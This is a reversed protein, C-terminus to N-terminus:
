TVLAEASTSDSAGRLRQFDLNLRSISGQQKGTRVMGIKECFEVNIITETGLFERLLTLVKDFEDTTFRLGKVIKLNIEGQAVQEVLYQRILYDYDKFLHAFFTGPLYRGSSGVILAQVRGEIQGIMPLGRGCACTKSSDMAVALDGLRYRIMPMCYNNLDTIVVEGMEGPKAPHGDKLIEVIYSEAVVHHGQHAECEYAIGSFERSGYKDFVKCGFSEEIVRRSQEPLIQASSMIARPRLGALESTKLYTALFNFSEAYGDIFTPQYKALREIFSKISSESMEFAPIFLRRCLFADIKERMVQLKSMGITQHWLRAQKDGFQYGTWEASRLTSAWRIELQHQDAFCTFPEGTSGSTSVRIIRKKDHNDSLLDFYLNQRVDQKSLLPLKQLDELTQVDEPKLGLARMRDHYYPVHRYAHQILARLKLQQLQKVDAPSLWQSKKLEHYYLKARRTIMWKHLPTLLFYVEFLVKRWLAPSRDATVPKHTKLFDALIHDRKTSLRFEYFGKFVDSFTKLIMRVALGKIFSKGALRSEFLTEVERISYGKSVASVALLSQFYNYKLRHRLIDQLVEKHAIVFGSKNDRLRMGFASNLLVNLARSMLYRSDRLRGISSRYGQAVDARSFMIEQYLRWVQEPPNQLDADILCVFRGRAANVGTKWGAEIGLNCAHREFRLMPYEKMLESVVEVTRDTSGDDVLILEGHLHKSDFLSVVRRVLEPINGEENLCPAVISIEISRACFAEKDAQEFNASVKTEM